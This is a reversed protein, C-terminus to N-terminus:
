LRGGSLSSAPVSSAPQPQAPTPSTPVSATTTPSVGGPPDTGATTLPNPPGATATATSATPATPAATPAQTTAVPRAHRLETGTAAPLQLSSTRKTTFQMGYLGAYSVYRRAAASDAFRPLLTDPDGIAQLTYPSTVPLLDVLIAEGAARIATAPSIREGNIAIAEAGALWLAYTISQLDRDRLRGNDDAPVTLVNGTAPDVQQVAAADAVEVTLGPGRVPILAAAAELRRVESIAREGDESATLAADRERVLQASLAEAQRQLQNSEATGRGVDQVLERRARESSPAQRTATRYGCALVIGVLLLGIVLLTRTRNRDAAPDTAPSAARREAALAYGRDLHDTLLDNLLSTSMAGFHPRHRTRQQGRTAELARRVIFRGYDDPPDEWTM